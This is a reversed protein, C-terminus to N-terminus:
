YSLNTFQGKGTLLSRVSVRHLVNKSNALDWLYMLGTKTLVMLYGAQSLSTCSVADEILLAPFTRAGTKIDYINITLDECCAIVLKRNSAITRISSGVFHFKPLTHGLFPTTLAGLFTEWVPEKKETAKCM